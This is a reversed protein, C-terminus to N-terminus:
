FYLYAFVADLLLPLPSLSLSTMFVPFVIHRWLWAELLSDTSLGSLNQSTSIFKFTHFQSFRSIPDLAIWTCCIRIDFDLVIDSSTSSINSLNFILLQHLVVRPIWRVTLSCVLIYSTSVELSDSRGYFVHTGPRLLPITPFFKKM